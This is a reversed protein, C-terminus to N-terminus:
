SRNRQHTSLSASAKSLKSNLGARWQNHYDQLLQHNKLIILTEYLSCGLGLNLQSFLYKVASQVPVNEHGSDRLHHLCKMLLFADFWNYFNKIRLAPQSSGNLIRIYAKAFDQQVLFDNLDTDDSYYPETILHILDQEVKAIWEKIVVFSKPNYTAYQAPGKLRMDKIAKGTGFPVRDSVRGSPFVCTDNIDALSLNKSFKHIFYFDEGAQRLNMGGEKAYALARVAMASGVTQYAYPLHLQRQMGIFYRLHLEYLCIPQQDQTSPHHFALSCAELKPNNSFHEKIVKLYSDTVYTDADLNVIIGDSNISVFYMLATDMLLKRALGVGAKKGKLERLFLKVSNTEIRTAYQVKLRGLLARALQISDTSDTEKYNILVLILFSCAPECSLVSNITQTLEDYTEQYAPIVIIIELDILEDKISDFLSRDCRHQLYRSLYKPFQKLNEM